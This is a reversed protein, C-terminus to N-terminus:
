YYAPVCEFANWAELRYAQCDDLMSLIQLDPLILALSHADADYQDKVGSM